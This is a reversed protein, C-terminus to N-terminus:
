KRSQFAFVDEAAQRLKEDLVSRKRKLVVDKENNSVPSDIDDKDIQFEDKGTLDEELSPNSKDLKLVCLMYILSSIFLIRSINKLRMETRSQLNFNANCNSGVLAVKGIGHANQTLIQIFMFHILM